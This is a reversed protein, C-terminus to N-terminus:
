HPAYNMTAWVYWSACIGCGYILLGHVCINNIPMPTMYPVFVSTTDHVNSRKNCRFCLDTDNNSISSCKNCIWKGTQILEDFPFCIPNEAKFTGCRFCSNRVAFNVTKCPPHECVWDGFRFETAPRIHTRIADCIECSRYHGRNISRCVACKWDGKKKAGKFTSCKFCVRRYFHNYARCNNVRCIWDGESFDINPRIFKCERCTLHYFVHTKYCNQCVWSDFKFSM